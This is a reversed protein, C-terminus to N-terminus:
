PEWLDMTIAEVEDNDNVFFDVTGWMLCSDYSGDRPQISIQLRDEYGDPLPMPPSACHDHEGVTIQYPQAHVLMGLASFPGVYARFDEVDLTWVSPSRLDEARVEKVIDSGLGLAVADALPLGGFTSDSPRAAFMVFSDVLQEAPTRESLTESDVLFAANVWGIEGDTRRVVHWFGGDDAFRGRDIVDVESGPALEDVQFYAVGPGARMNLVDDAAVGVVTARYITDTATGLFCGAWMPAYELDCVLGYNVFLGGQWEERTTVGVCGMEGWCLTSRDIAQVAPDSFVTAEFPELFELLQHSTSARNGPNWREGDIRFDVTAVGVSDIAATVENDKREEIWDFGTHLGRDQEYGKTGRVLMELKTQLDPPDDMKRVVPFPPRDGQPGCWALFATHHHISGITEATCTDSPEAPTSTTTPPTATTPPVATTTPAATSPTAFPVTSPTSSSPPDGGASDGCAAALLAVALLVATVANRKPPAINARSRNV